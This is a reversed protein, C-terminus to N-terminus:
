MTFIHERGLPGVRVYRLSYVELRGRRRRDTYVSPSKEVYWDEVVAIHHGPLSFRSVCLM